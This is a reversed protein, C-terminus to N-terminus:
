ARRRVKPKIAEIFADMDSAPIRWADGASTRQANPFKGKEILRRVSAAGKGLRKAAQSTTLFEDAM